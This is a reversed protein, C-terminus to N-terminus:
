NDFSKASSQARDYNEVLSASGRDGLATPVAALAGISGASTPITRFGLEREVPVMQTAPKGERGSGSALM